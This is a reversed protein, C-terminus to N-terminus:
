TNGVNQSLTDGKLLVFSTPATTRTIVAAAAAAFIYRYLLSM